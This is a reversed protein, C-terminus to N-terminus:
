DEDKSDGKGGRGRTSGGNALTKLAKAGAKRANEDSQNKWPCDRAGGTHLCTRCKLCCFAALGKSPDQSSAPEEPPFRPFEDRTPRTPAMAVNRKQQIVTSYWDKSKCDRLYCYLGCIAHIRSDALTRLLEMEDVHHNLETSAYDWGCDTALELLHKHLGIYWRLSSKVIVPLYGYNGWTHIRTLDTWGSRKCATSILTEMRKHIKPVLKDLHKIRTRLKAESTIGRISTRKETRWRLDTRGSKGAVGRNQTVLEELAEGLMGVESTTGELDGGSNLGGPLAVSDITGNILSRAMAESLDPPCLADQLEEESAEIDVNYLEEPSGTSPDSGMLMGPPYLSLPGNPPKKISALHAQPVPPTEGFSSAPNIEERSTESASKHEWAATHGEVYGQAEGYTRFKRVSAGSVNVVHIQAAPWNPFLEHHGTKSNTVAYWVDSVPTGSPQADAQQRRLAQTAAVFEHAEQWTGFRQFIAKSVGVVLPAAEGWSTFVGSTGDRGHGVGYFYKAKSEVTARLPEPEEVKLAPPPTIVPPTSNNTAITAVKTALEAMSTTMQDMMAMMMVTAPDMSEAKLGTAQLKKLTPSQSLGPEEKFVFKTKLEVPKTASLPAPNAVLHVAPKVDPSYKPPSKLASTKTEMQPAIMRALSLDAMAAPDIPQPAILKSAAPHDQFYLEEDPVAPSEKSPGFLASALGLEKAKADMREQEKGAFEEMSLFTNHKGDVYKRAKVPEYYGVTGKEGTTHGIRKCGIANGCVRYFSGKDSELEFICRCEKPGFLCWPPLESVSGGYESMSAESGANSASDDIDEDDDNMERVTEVTPLDFNNFSIGM